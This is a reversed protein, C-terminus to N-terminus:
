PSKTDPGTLPIFREDRELIEAIRLGFKDGVKVAEGAAIKQGGVEVHLPSDCGKDFQIMAGPVLKLIQHVPISKQALLVCVPVEVKLLSQSFERKINTKSVGIPV